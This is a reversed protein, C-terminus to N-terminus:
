QCNKLNREALQYDRLYEAHLEAWQDETFWDKFKDLEDLKVKSENAKASLVQCDIEESESACGIVFLLIIFYKM